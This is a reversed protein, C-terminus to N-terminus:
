PLRVFSVDLDQNLGAHHYVGGLQDTGEGYSLTYYSGPYNRDRLEVYLLLFGGQGRVEAKAVHIPQPNEYAADVRGDAGVSRITLVYGGDPRLWRGALKERLPAPIEETTGTGAPAPIMARPKDALHIAIAIGGVVPPILVVPLWFLWKRVPRGARTDRHPNKQTM